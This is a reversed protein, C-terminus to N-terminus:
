STPEEGADDLEIVLTVSSLQHVQQYPRVVITKRLPQDDKARVSRVSGVIMAFQVREGVSELTDIVRM